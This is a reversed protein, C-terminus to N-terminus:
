YCLALTMIYLLECASASYRAFVFDPQETGYNPSTLTAVLAGRDCRPGSYGLICIPTSPWESTPCHIIPHSNIRHKKRNQGM